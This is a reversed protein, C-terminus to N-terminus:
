RPASILFLSSCFNDFTITAELSIPPMIRESISLQLVCLVSDLDICRCLVPRTLVPCPIRISLAGLLTSIM